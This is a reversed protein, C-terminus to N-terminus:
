YQFCILMVHFKLQGIKRIKAAKNPGTRWGARPQGGDFEANEALTTNGPTPELRHTRANTRKVTQVSWRCGCRSRIAATSTVAAPYKQGGDGISHSAEALAMQGIIPTKRRFGKGFAAWVALGSASSSSTQVYQIEHILNVRWTNSFGIFVLTKFM